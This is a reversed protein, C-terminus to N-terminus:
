IAVAPSQRSSVQDRYAQVYIIALAAFIAAALSLLINISTKTGTPIESMTPDQTVVVNTIKQQDLQDSVRAAEQRRAYQVYNDHAQQVDSSLVDFTGSISVIHDLDSRLKRVQQSLVKQQGLAGALEVRKTASLTDLTQFTPNVQETQDLQIGQQAKTLATQTQKIEEDVEQVAVDSDLFKSRLQARRNRLDNLSSTLHDVSYENLGLRSTGVVRAPLKTQLSRSAAIEQQLESVNADVAMLASQKELLQSTLLERQQTLNLVHENRSFQALRQQADELLERYHSTQDRYFAYSGPTSQSRLHAELYGNKITQLVAVAAQPSSAEYTINIINARRVPTVELRSSVKRVAKEIDEERVEARLASKKVLHDKIVASRILDYSTLLEVESNVEAETVQNLGVAETRGPADFLDTPTPRVLIKMTSIYKKPLFIAIALGILFVSLFTGIALRRYKRLLMPISPPRLASTTESNIM